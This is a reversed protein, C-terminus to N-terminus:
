VFAALPSFRDRESAGIVAKHGVTVWAHAEADAIAGVGLHLRAPIGRRRLMRQVALAQPLCTPRWPVRHADRAVVAGVIRAELLQEPRVPEVASTGGGDVRGLLASARQPSVLRLALSVRALEGVAELHRWKRSAVV